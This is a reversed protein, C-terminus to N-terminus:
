SLGYKEQLLESASRKSNEKKGSNKEKFEKSRKLWTKLRLETNFSKEKEKRFKRDREGHESWYEFFDKVIEKSYFELFPILSNYFEQKREEISKKGKSYEEISQPNVTLDSNSKSPKRHLKSPKRIGKSILLKLLSNRDICNNARKSYADGISDIFDQCWIIRNESWLERDFKGLEVLDNIISELTQKSVKCKASMFMITMSESLDLYHYDTKALERLIKIFTAFGDNGYTEEIYFMKKGDECLFPFYDVNNRQPRAM